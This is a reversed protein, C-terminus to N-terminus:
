NDIQRVERTNKQGEVLGQMQMSFIHLVPEKHDRVYNLKRTIMQLLHLSRFPLITFKGAVQHIKNGGRKSKTVQFSYNPSM